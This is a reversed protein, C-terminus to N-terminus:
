GRGMVRGMEVTAVMEMVWSLCCAPLVGQEAASSTWSWLQTVLDVLKTSSALVTLTVTVSVAM